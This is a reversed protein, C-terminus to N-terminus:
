ESVEWGRLELRLRQNEEELFENNKREMRRVLFILGIFVAMRITTEEASLGDTIFLCAMILLTLIVIIETLVRYTRSKM